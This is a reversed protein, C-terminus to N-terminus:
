HPRSSFTRTVGGRAGAPGGQDPVRMDSAIMGAIFRRRSSELTRGVPLHSQEVFHITEFKKRVRRTEHKTAGM